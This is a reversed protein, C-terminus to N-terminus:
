SCCPIELERESIWHLTALPKTLGLVRCGVRPDAGKVATVVAIDTLVAAVLATAAVLAAVRLHWLSARIPLM